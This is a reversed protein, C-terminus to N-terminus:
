YYKKRNIGEGQRSVYNNVRWTSTCFPFLGKVMNFVFVFSASEPSFYVNKWGNRGECAVDKGDKSPFLVLRIRWFQVDFHKNGGGVCYVIFYVFPWVSKWLQSINFFNIIIINLRILFLLFKLNWAGLGSEMMMEPWKPGTIHNRSTKMTWHRTEVISNRITNAQLM